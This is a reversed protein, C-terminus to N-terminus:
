GTELSLNSGCSRGLLFAVWELTVKPGLRSMRLSTMSLWSHTALIDVRDKRFTSSDIDSFCTVHCLM